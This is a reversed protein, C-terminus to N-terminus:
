RSKSMAGPPLARAAAGLEMAIRLYDDISTPPTLAPTEVRAASAIDRHLTDIRQAFASALEAATQLDSQRTVLNLHMANMLRVLWGQSARREKIRKEIEDRLRDAQITLGPVGYSVTAVVSDTIPPITDVLTRTHVITQALREPKLDEANVNGRVQYLLAFMQQNQTTTEAHRAQAELRSQGAAVIWWIVGAIVPIPVVVNWPYELSLVVFLGIFLSVLAAPVQDSSLRFKRLRTLSLVVVCLAVDVAFVTSTPMHRVNSPHGMIHATNAQARTHNQTAPARM